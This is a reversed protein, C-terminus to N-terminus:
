GGGQTLLFLRRYTTFIRALFYGAPRLRLGHESHEVLFDKELDQMRDDLLRQSNLERLIEEKSAKGRKRVFLLIQFSPSIASAAPFTM